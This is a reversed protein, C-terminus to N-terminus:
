PSMDHTTKAPGAALTSHTNLSTKVASTHFKCDCFAIKQNCSPRSAATSLTPVGRSRYFGDHCGPSLERELRLPAALLLILGFGRPLQM